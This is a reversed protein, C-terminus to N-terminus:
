RGLEDCCGGVAGSPGLGKTAWHERGDPVGADLVVLMLACVADSFDKYEGSAMPYDTSVMWWIRDPCNIRLGHTNAKLWPIVEGLVDPQYANWAGSVSYGTATGRYSRRIAYSNVDDGTLGYGLAEGIRKKETWNM